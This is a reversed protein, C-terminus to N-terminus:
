QRQLFASAPFINWAVYKKLCVVNFM